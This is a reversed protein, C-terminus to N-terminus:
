NDVDMQDVAEVKLLELLELMRANREWSHKAQQTEEVVAIIEASLAEVTQELESMPVSVGGLDKGSGKFYQFTQDDVSRFGKSEKLLAQLQLTVDIDLMERSTLGKDTFFKAFKEESDKMFEKLEHETFTFSASDVLASSDQLEKKALPDNKGSLIQNYNDVLLHMKEIEPGQITQLRQIEEETVTKYNNLSDYKEELRKLPSVSSKDEFNANALLRDIHATYQLELKNKEFRLQELKLKSQDSLTGESALEKRTATFTELIDQRLKLYLNAIADDNALASSVAAAVFEPQSYETM